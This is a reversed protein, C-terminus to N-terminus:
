PEKKKEKDLQKLHLTLNNIQYKEQKKLYSQIARFKGRLVAKPTDQLNQTTNENGNTELFKKIKRKIEETINKNNLLTNNLRWSNTNKATKERYNIDLRMANHDSFIGSVIETKKFKSLSSKHGLIHDIRSFTVHASSFFIHEAANTHFTRFIDILDM